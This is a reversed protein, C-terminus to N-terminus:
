YNNFWISDPDYNCIPSYNSVMCFKKQNWFLQFFTIVCDLNQKIMNIERESQFFYCRDSIYSDSHIAERPMIIVCDLAGKFPETRYHQSACPSEFSGKMQTGMIGLTHDSNNKREPKKNHIHLILKILIGRLHDFFVLIVSISWIFVSGRHRPPPSPTSYAWWKGKHQILHGFPHGSTLADVAHISYAPRRHLRWLRPQFSRFAPVFLQGEGNEFRPAWYGM